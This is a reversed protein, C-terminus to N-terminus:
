PLDAVLLLLQRRTANVAERQRSIAITDAHHFLVPLDANRFVM